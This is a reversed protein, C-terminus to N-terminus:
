NNERKKIVIMAVAGALAVFAAVAVVLVTGISDGVIPEDSEATTTEPETAEPETAEPETVDPTPETVDPTPETVDPTPETVDPTPETVDPTPETVDPTPETVDPTPETVDPTPETEEPQADPDVFEGNKYEIKKVGEPFNVTTFEANATNAIAAITNEGKNEYIGGQINLTAGANAGNVVAATGYSIFHGGYINVIGYATKTGGRIASGGGNTTYVYTGGYIDLSPIGDEVYTDTAYYVRVACNQNSEVYVDGSLKAYAGYGIVNIAADAGSAKYSGGEIYFSNNPNTSICYAGTATLSVNKLTVTSRLANTTTITQMTRNGNSTAVTNSVTATTGEQFYFAYGEATDATVNCNDVVVVNRGDGDAFVGRNASVVTTDNINVNWYGFYNIAADAKATGTANVTCGVINLTSRTEEGSCAAANIGKKNTNVTLNKISVNISAGEVTITDFGESSVTKGNGDITVSKNVNITAKAIINDILVITDGAQAAAIAEELSAYEVEGIKAYKKTVLAKIAEDLAKVADDAAKQSALPNAAVEKAAALAAKFEAWNATYDIERLTDAAEIATNLATFDTTPNIYSDGSKAVSNSGDEAAFLTPHLDEALNQFFIEEGAAQNAMYALEGSKAQEATVIKALNDACDASGLTAKNVTTKVGAVYFEDISYNNGVNPSANSKNYVTLSLVSGSVLAKELYIKGLNVNNKLEYVKSNVYGVIGSIHQAKTSTSNVYIDGTNINNSVGNVVGKNNTGGGYAYGAIGGVYYTTSGAINAYLDGHNECNTVRYSFDAHNANRGNRAVIGAVVTTGTVKGYNVCRDITLGCINAVEAGDIEPIYSSGVIGAAMGTAVIEGYNNCNTVTAVGVFLGLMGGSQGTASSVKGYNDCNDITIVSGPATAKDRGFRGIIGGGYSATSVVDGTNICNKISVTYDQIYGFLGGTQGSGTMKGENLCNEATINCGTEGRGILSGVTSGTVNAQNYINEFKATGDTWMCVAGAYLTTEVSGKIILNKVTGKLYAFMPATITVTHGNGDFTGTFATNGSNATVDAGANWTKSVTIDATLHYNKGAEMALFEAETSVAISGEAPTYGEEVKGVNTGGASVTTVAAVFMTSVMALALLVCLFKKM